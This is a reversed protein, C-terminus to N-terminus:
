VDSGDAPADGAHGLGPFPNMGWQGQGGHREEVMMRRRVGKRLGTEPCTGWGGSFHNRILHYVCNPVSPIVMQRAANAEVVTLAVTNVIRRVSASPTLVHAPAACGLLVPGVGVNRGAATNLLNYAINAADLNPCVLLNASSHLTSEPLITKRLGEDLASDGHMEGDVELEPARERLQALAHRMKLASPAESSGFNSHSLLALKPEVGFRRMADAAMATIEAIQEATPDLNVHTDVLFAQRNPLVLANMAAYVSAGPRKGIVRDHLASATGYHQEHRLDPRRGRGQAAAHRRDADKRRRM